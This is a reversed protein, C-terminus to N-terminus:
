RHDISVEVTEDEAGLFSANIVGNCVHLIYSVPKLGKKKKKRRSQLGLKKHLTCTESTGVKTNMKQKSNTLIWEFSIKWERDMVNERQQSNRSHISGVLQPPTFPFSGELRRYPSTFCLAQFCSAGVQFKETYFSQHIKYREIQTEVCM